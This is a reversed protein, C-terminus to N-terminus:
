ILGELVLLLSVTTLTELLDMFFRNKLKKAITVSCEAANAWGLNPSIEGSIASGLALPLMMLSEENFPLTTNSSKQADHHPGQRILL